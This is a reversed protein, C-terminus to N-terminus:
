GQVTETVTWGKATAISRDCSKTGECGGIHISKGSVRGLSRFLENIAEASLKPNNSANITCTCEPLTYKELYEHYVELEQEGNSIM